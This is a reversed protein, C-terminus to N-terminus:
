MDAAASADAGGGVSLDDAGMAGAAGDGMAGSAGSMDSSIGSYSSPPIYTGGGYGGGFSSFGRGRSGGSRGGMVYQSAAGANAGLTQSIADAALGFGSSIPPATPLPQYVFPSAAGIRVFSLPQMRQNISQLYNSQPAFAFEGAQNAMSYPLTLNSSPLTVNGYNQIQQNEAANAGAAAGIQNAAGANAQFRLLRNGYSDGSFGKGAQAADIAALSSNLGQLASQRATSLRLAQVPAAQDMLTKTIGGSFIDNTFKEAGAQSPQLSSAANEFSTLPVATSGYANVLDTGLTGEFLSGNPNTMYLPLVASGGQGRAEEFMKYNQQNATNQSDAATQAAKKTASAQAESGLLGAVGSLPDSM